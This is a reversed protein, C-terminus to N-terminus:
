MRAQFRSIREDLIKGDRIVTAAEICANPTGEVLTDLFAATVEGIANTASRFYIAPTHDVVYHIVGDVVYTPSAITTPQSTEVGMGEDCSIDIIMSNGRMRPLDSKYIIHDTRFVDWLVANVVVDFEPLEDRLLGVADRDYVQVTAGLRGLSRIAGRACNGNGVVAARVGDLLRGLHNAAHLIAAEGAIENNRWFCHRGGIFMDEWAIATMSRGLLMDVTERGQVAHVWGFLTQGSQFRSRENPEPAKPNCIIDMSYVDERDVVKCGMAEFDSDPIGFPLGYGREFALQSRHRVNVIHQPLVARRSENEKGSIVFGINRM